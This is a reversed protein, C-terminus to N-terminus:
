EHHNSINGMFNSPPYYNREEKGINREYTYSRGGKESTEKGDRTQGIM